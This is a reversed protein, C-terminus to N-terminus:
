RAQEKVSVPDYRYTAALEQMRLSSMETDAALENTLTGGNGFAGNAFVPVAVLLSYEPTEQLEGNVSYVDKCRLRCSKTPAIVTEIRYSDEVRPTADEGRFRISTPRADVDLVAFLTVAYEGFGFTDGVLRLGEADFALRGAFLQDGTTADDVHLYLWANNPEGTAGLAALRELDVAGTLVRALEGSALTSIPTAVADPVIEAVEIRSNGAQDTFYVDLAVDEATGWGDNAVYVALSQGNAAADAKVVPVEIAELEEVELTVSEVQAAADGQNRIFSLISFAKYISEDTAEVREAYREYFGLYETSDVNGAMMYDFCDSAYVQAALQEHNAQLSTANSTIEARPGTLGRGLVLALVVAVVVVGIGIGVIGAVNRSPPATPSLASVAEKPIVPQQEAAADEHMLARVDRVLEDLSEAVDQYATGRQVDSFYFSFPAVIDCKEIAIPLVPKGCNLASTIEKRTWRSQQSRESLVFVVVQCAEIAEQIEVGFSEGSQIGEVDMWCSIGNRELVLRVATAADLDSRAYSIFVDEAM